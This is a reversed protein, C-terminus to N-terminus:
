KKRSFLGRKKPTVSVGEIEALKRLLEEHEKTINKPTEIYVVAILDGRGRGRLRPVGKGQLRLNQGSQAGKPIDLKEPGELTQIEVDGGLAALSYTIPVGVVVDDGERRFIEHRKVNMFVYLDGSPAGPDGPEGEGQLRLRSGTEVGAPIKLTLKKSTLVRGVGRCKACPDKIETGSGQCKPCTTSISFFGQSRTVQGRGGCASCVSPAAGGKTGQGHCDDCVEHKSVDIEMERGFVADMFEITLELRLDAGRRVVNRGGRSSGFGFFEEFIDGFSSFVDEFNRFGQFGSQQLGDHGYRDYIQRKEADSLVEYAEAAEKFKEESEKNGKNRDPHHQLALKRYSKKIEEATASKSVALVEYYDRKIM